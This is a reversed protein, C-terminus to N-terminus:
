STELIIQAHMLLPNPLIGATSRQQRAWLVIGKARNAKTRPLKAKTPKAKLNVMEERSQFVRDKKESCSRKTVNTAPPANTAPPEEEKLERELFVCPKGYVRRCCEDTRDQFPEYCGCKICARMNDVFSFALFLNVFKAQACRSRRSHHEDYCIWWGM